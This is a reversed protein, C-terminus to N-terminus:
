HYKSIRHSGSGIYHSIIPIRIANCNNKPTHQRWRSSRISRVETGKREQKSEALDFVNPLPRPNSHRCLAVMLFWPKSKCTRTIFM